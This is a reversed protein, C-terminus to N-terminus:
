AKESKYVIWGADPDGLTPSHWGAFYRRGWLLYERHNIENVVCKAFTDLFDFSPLINM